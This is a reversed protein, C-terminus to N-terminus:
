GQEGDVTPNAVIRGKEYWEISFQGAAERVGLVVLAGRAYSLHNWGDSATYSCLKERDRDIDSAASSKKKIEIVLLNHNPGNLGRHHIIIDPYVGTGSSSNPYHVQKRGTESDLDNNYECDVHFGAFRHELYVALRHDITREHVDYTLLFLENRFLRDISSYLSSEIVESDM